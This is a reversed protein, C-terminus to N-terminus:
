TKWPSKEKRMEEGQEMFVRRFLGQGGLGAAMSFSSETKEPHVFPGATIGM